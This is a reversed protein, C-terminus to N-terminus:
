KKRAAERERDLKVMIPWFNEAMEHFNNTADTDCYTDIIQELKSGPPIAIPPVTSANRGALNGQFWSMLAIYKSYQEDSKEKHKRATLWVACSNDAAGIGTAVFRQEKPQTQAMGGSCAITFATAALFFRSKKM